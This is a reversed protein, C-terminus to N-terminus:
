AFQLHDLNLILPKREQRLCLRCLLRHHLRHSTFPLIFLHVLDDSTKDFFSNFVNLLTVIRLDHRNHLSWPRREPVLRVELNQLEGLNLKYDVVTALPDILVASEQVFIIEPWSDVDFGTWGM